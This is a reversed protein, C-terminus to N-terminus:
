RRKKLYHWLTSGTFAIPAILCYPSLWLGGVMSALWVPYFLMKIYSYTNFGFGGGTVRPNLPQIGNIVPMIFGMVHETSTCTAHDNTFIRDNVYAGTNFGFTGTPSYKDPRVISAIIPWPDWVGRHNILYDCVRAVKRASSRRCISGIFFVFRFRFDIDDVIHSFIDTGMSHCILSIEAYPHDIKVKVIQGKVEDRIAKLGLRTILHRSSIRGGYSKIAIIPDSFTELRNATEDIWEANTRIGPILIVIKEPGMGAPVFVSEVFSPAALDRQRVVRRKAM